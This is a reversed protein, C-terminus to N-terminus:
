DKGSRHSRQRKKRTNRGNLFCTKEVFDHRSFDHYAAGHVAVAIERSSQEFRGFRISGLAGRRPIDLRRSVPKNKKTEVFSVETTYYFPPKQV